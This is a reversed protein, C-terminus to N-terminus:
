VGMGPMYPPPMYQPAMNQPAHPLLGNQLHKVLQSQGSRIMGPQGDGYVQETRWQDKKKMKMRITYLGILIPPVGVALAVIIGIRTGLDLSNWGSAVSTTTPAGQDGGTGTPGSSTSPAAPAATSAGAEAVPGVAITTTSTPRSPETEDADGDCTLMVAAMAGDYAAYCNMNNNAGREYAGSVDECAVDTFVWHAVDGSICPVPSLVFSELGTTVACVNLGLTVNPNSASPTSCAHDTYLSLAISTSTSSRALRAGSLLAWAIFSALM